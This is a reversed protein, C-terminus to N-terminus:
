REATGAGSGLPLHSRQLRRPLCSGVRKVCHYAGLALQLCSASCRSCGARPLTLPVAAGGDGSVDWLAAAPARPARRARGASSSRGPCGWRARLRPSRGPPLRLEQAPRACRLAGGSVSSGRSGGPRAETQRFSSAAAATQLSCKVQAKGYILFLTHGGGDLCSSLLKNERLLLVDLM